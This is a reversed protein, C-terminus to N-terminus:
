TDSPPPPLYTWHTPQTMPARAAGGAICFGKRGKWKAINLMWGQSDNLPPWACLVICDKPASEIPQWM